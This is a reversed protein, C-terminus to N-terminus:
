SAPRGGPRCLAKLAPRYRAANDGAATTNVTITQAVCFRYGAMDKADHAEILGGLMMAMAGLGYGKRLVVGFFSM